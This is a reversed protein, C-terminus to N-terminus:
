MTKWDKHIKRQNKYIDQAYKMASLNGHRRSFNGIRWFHRINVEKYPVMDESFRRLVSSCVSIFKITSSIQFMSWDTSNELCKSFSVKPTTKKTCPSILTYPHHTGSSFVRASQSTYSSVTSIITIFMTLSLYIICPKIGPKTRQVKTKITKYM